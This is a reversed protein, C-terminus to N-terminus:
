ALDIASDPVQASQAAPPLKWGSASDWKSIQTGAHNDYTM